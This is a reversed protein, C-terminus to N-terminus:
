SEPDLSALLRQHAADLEPSLEDPGATVLAHLRGDVLVFRVRSTGREGDVYVTDIANGEPVVVERAVTRDGSLRVAAYRDALEQLGAPNAAAALTEPPLAFDTWVSEVLVGSATEFRMGVLGGGTPAAPDLYEFVDSSGVPMSVEFRGALDEVPVWETPLVGPPTRAIGWDAFPGALPGHGLWALAAVIVAVVPVVLLLTRPTAWVRPQRYRIEEPMPAVRPPDLVATPRSGPLMIGSGEASKGDLIGREAADAACHSCREQHDDM